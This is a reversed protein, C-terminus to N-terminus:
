GMIVDWGELYIIPAAICILILTVPLMSLCIQIADALLSVSRPPLATDRESYQEMIRKRANAIVKARSAVQVEIIWEGIIGLFVGLIIIGYLAFILTFLRSLDNTPSLDGYGISSPVLFENQSFFHFDLCM